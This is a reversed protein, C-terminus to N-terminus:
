ISTENRQFQFKQSNATGSLAAAAAVTTEKCADNAGNKPPTEPLNLVRSESAEPSAEEQAAAPLQLGNTQRGIGNTSQGHETTGMVMALSREEGPPPPPPPLLPPTLAPPTTTTETKVPPAQSKKPGCLAAASTSFCKTRGNRNNELVVLVDSKRRNDLPM